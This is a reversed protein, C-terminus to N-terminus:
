TIYSQESYSVDEPPIFAQLAIIGYGGAREIIMSIHNIGFCDDLTNDRRIKFLVLSQSDVCNRVKQLKFGIFKEATRGM